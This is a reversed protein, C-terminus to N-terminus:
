HVQQDGAAGEVNGQCANAWVGHLGACIDRLVPTADPHLAIAQMHRSVCVALRPCGTRAYHTMLYILAATISEVRSEEPDINRM